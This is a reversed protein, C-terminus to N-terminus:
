GPPPQTLEPRKGQFVIERLRLRWRGDHGRVFEDHYRGTSTVVSTRDFFVYDTWARASRGDAGLEIVPPSTVHRGRRDPRQGAEIFARIEEPGAHTRSMVHFRADTTFLDIWEAFRGDDCLQSYQAVTRRIGEGAEAAGVRVDVIEAIEAIENSDAREAV